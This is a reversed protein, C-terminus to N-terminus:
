YDKFHRMAIERFYKTYLWFVCRFFRNVVFNRAPEQYKNGYQGGHVATSSLSM